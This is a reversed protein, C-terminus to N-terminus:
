YMLLCTIMVILKTFGAKLVQGESIAMLIHTVQGMDYLIKLLSDTM